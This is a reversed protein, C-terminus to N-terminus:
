ASQERPRAVHRRTRARPPPVVVRWATAAAVTGVAAVYIGFAWPRSSDSGAALGHMTAGAFIGYTAWHLRRWNRTGIRKRQSFSLYVIVMMEATLVGVSTWLPRYAILGPVLLAPVTVRVTSDLVLAVAHGALAMLGFLALIRHLDTVVAPKLSRLPRSRITLGLLVSFTLMVYATLGFARALLWFTPDHRM